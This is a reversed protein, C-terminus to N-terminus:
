LMVICFMAVIIVLYALQGGAGSLHGGRGRDIAIEETFWPSYPRVTVTRTKLPAHTELMSKLTVNYQRVLAELDYVPDM